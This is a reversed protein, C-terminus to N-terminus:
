RIPRGDSSRLANCVDFVGPVSWALNGAVQRVQRDAVVGTLIVVRNQVTVTIRQERTADDTNLWHAVSAALRMDGADPEPPVPESPWYRDDPMPWPMVM